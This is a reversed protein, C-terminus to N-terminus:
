GEDAARTLLLERAEEILQPLLAVFDQDAEAITGPMRARIEGLFQTAREKLAPTGDIEGLLSTLDVASLAEGGSRKALPASTRIELRELWIDGHVRHSAAMVEDTMQESHALLQRHVETEGVLTVRVAVLRETAVLALPQLRNEVARLVAAESTAGAVNVSVDAWRARDVILRQLSTVEGDLVSVLVAGKEGTERIHRGQLNGPYVIYPKTQLVEFDHVHGLAWYDYGRARLHGPSAPAYNDHPPHGTLATHLVGINFWGSIRAPYNLVLNDTVARQAFGQGHLAVQLGEIRFTNPAETSFNKVSAPLTISKTIVSDADHNGRLLFVEIGARELRALERNFFLGISNDRWDGDYVDGAIVVFAVSEEIARSVLASFAQRSAEAIRRAVSEDRLALGHFPSGLHLDAAHLFKFGTL